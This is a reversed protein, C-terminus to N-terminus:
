PTHIYVHPLILVDSAVERVSGCWVYARGTREREGKGKFMGVVKRPYVVDWRGTHILTM